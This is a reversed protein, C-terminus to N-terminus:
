PTLVVVEGSSNLCINDESFSFVYIKKIKILWSENQESKTNYTKFRAVSIPNAKKQGDTSWFM